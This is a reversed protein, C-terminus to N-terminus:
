LTGTEFFLNALTSTSLPKCLFLGVRASSQRITGVEGEIRTHDFGPHQLFLARKVSM